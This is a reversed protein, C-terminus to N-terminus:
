PAYSITDLEEAEEIEMVLVDLISDLKVLNKTSVTEV